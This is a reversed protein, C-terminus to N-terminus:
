RSWHRLEEFGGGPKATEIVLQVAAETAQIEGKAVKEACEVATTAVRITRGHDTPMVCGVKLM